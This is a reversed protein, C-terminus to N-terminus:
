DAAKFGHNLLRNCQKGKVFSWQLTKVTILKKYFETESFLLLYAHMVCEYFKGM